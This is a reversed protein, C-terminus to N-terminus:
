GMRADIARRVADVDAPLEITVNGHRSTVSELAGAHYARKFETFKLGHATSVVGVREDPAITAAKM